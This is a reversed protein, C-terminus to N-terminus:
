EHIYICAYIRMCVKNWVEVVMQVDKDMVYQYPDLLDFHIMENEFDPNDDQRDDPSYM